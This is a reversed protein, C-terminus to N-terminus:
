YGQLERPFTEEAQSDGCGQHLQQQYQPEVVVAQRLSREGFNDQSLVNEGEAEAVGGTQQSGRLGGEPLLADGESEVEQASDSVSAPDVRAQSSPYEDSYIQIM